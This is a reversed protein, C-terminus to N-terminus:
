QLKTTLLITTLKVRPLSHQVTGYDLKKTMFSVSSLQSHLFHSLITVLFLSRSELHM